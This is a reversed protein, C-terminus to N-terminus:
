ARRFILERAIEDAKKTAEEHWIPKEEEWKECKINRYNCCSRYKWMWTQLDNESINTLTDIERMKAIIPSVHFDIGEPIWEERRLVPITNVDIPVVGCVHFNDNMIKNYRSNRKSNTTKLTETNDDNFGGLKSNEHCILSSQSCNIDDSHLLESSLSEDKQYNVTESILVDIHGNILDQSISRLMQQDGTMGGYSARVLLAFVCSRTLPDPFNLLQHISLSTNLSSAANCSRESNISSYPSATSKKRLQTISYKCQCLARICGMLWCKVDYTPKWPEKGSTTAVMIWVITPYYDIIAVDEAPIICLRRIFSSFDLECLIWATKVALESLGRRICKQLHSKLFPVNKYARFTEMLQSCHKQKDNKFKLTKLVHYRRNAKVTVLCTLIEEKLPM